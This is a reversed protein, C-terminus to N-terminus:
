IKGLQAWIHCYWPQLNYPNQAIAEWLEFFCFRWYKWGSLNVAIALASYCIRRGLRLGVDICILHLRDLDQSIHVLGTEEVHTLTHPFIATMDSNSINFTRIGLKFETLSLCLISLINPSWKSSYCRTICRARSITYLLDRYVVSIHTQYCTRIPTPQNSKCSEPM